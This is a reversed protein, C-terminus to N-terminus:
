SSSPATATLSPQPITFLGPEPEILVGRGVLRKLKARTSDTHRPETGIGHARCVDKAHLGRGSRDNGQALQGLRARDPYRARGRQTRM